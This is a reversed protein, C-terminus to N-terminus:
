AEEFAITDGVGSSCTLHMQEDVFIAEVGNIQEILEMGKEPGLLFCTTSLGDGDVSADSIITVSYLGNNLPMGTKPDLIHHYLKDNLEFYRQYVGSTVVSKDSLTLKGLIQDQYFPKEIGVVYSSDDPKSEILLVNGGLNIIGSTVGQSLLYEKMEDAIFGKAIGGLDLVADKDKLAVKNGDIKLKKYDVHKLAETIKAEDPVVNKEGTFDWLDSVGGITIDFLGNSLECYELGKQLVRLTEDSVTVFDGNADNIQSIESNEKTNSLLNEYKEALSFCEDIYKSNEGGYLTITIVTDFYFGTNSVPEADSLLGKNNKSGAAKGQSASEQIASGSENPAASQNSSSNTCGSLLMATSLTAVACLSLFRVHM